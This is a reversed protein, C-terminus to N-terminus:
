SVMQIFQQMTTTKHIPYRPIKYKDSNRTAKRNGGIFSMKFGAEKVAEISLDSYSYFPFCFSNNNDVIALSKKLDTLLEEKTACVVQGKGCSGYQHMDYTHSQIDLNPSRYNNVDWWGSILFLTAHMNYEELIPILKNGNHIGTGMAGDDITILVSKEPLEIEGYIWKRFEEMTLTKYGNNKLYDLQQRFVSVDLCINENCTEGLSSDYFFHYNLVAIGQGVINTTKKTPVVVEKIEEGSAIKKFNDLTTTNKIKYRSINDKKTDKTTKKNEDNFKLNTNEPILEIKLEYDNNLNTINQNNNTTLLIAKEKLRIKGDLWNSYEELTITYFNNEKLYNLQKRVKDIKICTDNSCTENEYINDYHIISVYDAEKQDTNIKDTLKINDEKKVQLLQNLYVVYYYNDDMYRIPLNFKDKVKLVEKNQKYFTIGQDNTINQNFILYREYDKNIEIKQNKNIDKYFVYFDANKVKFYTDSTDDIKKNELELTFDKKVSGIKKYDKNYLETDKIVIVYKNYHSKIEKILEKEKKEVYKLYIVTGILTLLLIFLIIIIVVANKKNFKKKM